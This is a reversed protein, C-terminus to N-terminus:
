HQVFFVASKDQCATCGKGCFGDAVKRLTAPCIVGHYEKAIAKIETLPAFNFRGDPLQSQVVNIGSRRLEESHETKTYTYVKVGKTRRLYAATYTWAETYDASFFDGGVHIRVASVTRSNTVQKTIAEFLRSRHKSAALITNVLRKLRVSEYRLSRVDYCGACRQSCTIVPLLSFSLIGKALKSNGNDLPHYNKFVGVIEEWAMSNGLKALDAITVTNMLQNPKIKALKVIANM